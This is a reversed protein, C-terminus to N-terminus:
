PLRAAVPSWASSAAAAAWSVRSPRGDLQRLVQLCSRVTTASANPVIASSPTTLPRRRQRRAREDLGVLVDEPVQPVVTQRSSSRARPRPRRVSRREARRQQDQTTPTSGSTLVRRRAAPASRRRPRPHCRVPRASRRGAGTRCRPEHRARRRASACSGPSPRGAVTERPGAPPSDSAASRPMTM